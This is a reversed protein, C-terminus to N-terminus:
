PRRGRFLLSTLAHSQTVGSSVWTVRVQLIRYEVPWNAIGGTPIREVVNITRRFRSDIVQGGPIQPMERDTHTARSMAEFGMAHGYDILEAAYTQALIEDRTMVTGANGRSFVQLAPIIGIMLVVMAVM